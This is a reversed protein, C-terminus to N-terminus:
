GHVRSSRPPKPHPQHLLLHSQLRPRLRRPEAPKVEEKPKEPAKAKCGIGMSVVNIVLVMALFLLIWKKMEDEGGKQNFRSGEGQKGSSRSKTEDPFSIKQIVRKLFKPEVPKKLIHHIGMKKTRLASTM